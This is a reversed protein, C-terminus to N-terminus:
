IECRLIIRISRLFHSTIAPYQDSIGETEKIREIGGSNQESQLGAFQGGIRNGISNGLAIRRRSLKPAPSLHEIFTDIPHAPEDAFVVVAETETLEDFGIRM